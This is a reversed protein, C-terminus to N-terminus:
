PTKPPAPATTGPTTAPTTASPKKAPAAPKKKKKVPTPAPCTPPTSPVVVAKASEQQAKLAARVDALQTEQDLANQQLRDDLAIRATGFEKLVKQLQPIQDGPAVVRSAEEVRLLVDYLADIHKMLPLSKSVIGPAGDAAAILGPLNGQLDKLIAKINDSAEDRIDGRKWKDIKLATLTSQVNTLSPQLISSASDPAAAPSPAQENQAPTSTPAAQGLMGAPSVSLIFILAANSIQM